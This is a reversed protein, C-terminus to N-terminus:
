LNNFVKEAVTNIMKEDESLSMAKCENVILDMLVFYHAGEDLDDVDIEHREFLHELPYEEVYKKYLEDFVDKTSVSDEQKVSMSKRTYIGIALFIAGIVTFVMPMNGPLFSVMNLQNILGLVLVISGLAFFSRYSSVIEDINSQNDFDITEYEDFYYDEMNPEEKETMVYGQMVKTAKSWQDDDVYVVFVNEGHENETAEVTASELESYSLYDIVKQAEEPSNVVMLMRPVHADEHDSVLEVHCDGCMKVHDEYEEKCKPCYAMTVRWENECTKGLM